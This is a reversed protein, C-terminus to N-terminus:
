KTTTAATGAPRANYFAIFDKTVDIDGLGLLLGAQELKVADLVMAYGRQKAFDQLAKGIDQMVPGLLTAQRSDFRAKADEQKFKIDRELKQYEDIKTQMATPNVPVSGPQSQLKKIDAQLTQYRTALTQLETQVPQFEKDLSNMANM